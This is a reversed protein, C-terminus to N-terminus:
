KSKKLVLQMIPATLLARPRNVPEAKVVAKSEAKLRKNLDFVTKMYEDFSQM